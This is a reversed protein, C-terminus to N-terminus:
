HVAAELTERRPLQLANLLHPLQVSCCPSCICLQKITLLLLLWLLCAQGAAAVASWAHADYETIPLNYALELAAQCLAEALKMRIYGAAEVTSADTCVLLTFRDLRQRDAVDAVVPPIM